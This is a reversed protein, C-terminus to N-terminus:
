SEEQVIAVGIDYVMWGVTQGPIIKVEPPDFGDRTCKVLVPKPVGKQAKAETKKLPKVVVVGFKRREKPKNNHYRYKAPFIFTHSFGEHHNLKENTFKKQKGEIGEIKIYPGFTDVKHWMIVSNTPLRVPLKRPLIPKNFRNMRIKIQEQIGEEDSQFIEMSETRSEPIRKKDMQKKAVKKVREKRELPIVKYRIKEPKRILKFYADCPGLTRSDFHEQLNITVKGQIYGKKEKNEM